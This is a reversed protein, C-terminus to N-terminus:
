WWGRAWLDGELAPQAARQDGGHVVAPWAGLPRGALLPHVHVVPHGILLRRWRRLFNCEVAEPEAGLAAPGALAALASSRHAACRQLLQPSTSPPRLRDWLLLRMAQRNHARPPSSVTTYLRAWSGRGGLVLAAGRAHLSREIKHGRVLEASIDQPASGGSAARTPDLVIPGEFSRQRFHSSCALWLRRSSAHQVKLPRAVAQQDALCPLFESTHSEAGRLAMVPLPMVPPIGSDQLAIFPRCLRHTAACAHGACAPWDLMQQSLAGVQSVCARM